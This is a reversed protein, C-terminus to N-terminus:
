HRRRKRKSLPKRMLAKLAFVSKGSVKMKPRRKRERRKVKAEARCELEEVTAKM